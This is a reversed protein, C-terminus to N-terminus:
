SAGLQEGLESARDRAAHLARSMLANFGGAAMVELAARSWVWYWSLYQVLDIGPPPNAVLAAVALPTNLNFRVTHFDIASRPIEEGTLEFYRQFASPLDGLPESLDRGRM